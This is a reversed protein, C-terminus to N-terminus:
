AELPLEVPEKMEKWGKPQTIFTVTCTVIDALAIKVHIYPVMPSPIAVPM